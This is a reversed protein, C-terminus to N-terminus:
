FNRQVPYLVFKILAASLVGAVKIKGTKHQVKELGPCGTSSGVERVVGALVLWMLFPSTWRRSLLARKLSNLRQWQPEKIAALYRQRKESELILPNITVGIFKCNSQLVDLMLHCVGTNKLNLCESRCSLSGAESISHCSLRKVNQWRM